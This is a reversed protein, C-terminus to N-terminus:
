IHILSLREVIDPKFNSDKVSFRGILYSVFSLAIGLLCIVALADLGIGVTM